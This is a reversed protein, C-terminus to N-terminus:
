ISLNSSQDSLVTLNSEPDYFPCSSQRAKELAWDISGYSVTFNEVVSSGDKYHLEMKWEGQSLAIDDPMRLASSGYYPVGDYLVKSVPLQWVLGDPSSIIMQISDPSSVGTQIFVSLGMQRGTTVYGQVQLENVTFNEKHCSSVLVLLCLAALAIFRVARHSKM